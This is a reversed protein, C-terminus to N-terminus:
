LEKIAFDAPPDRRLPILYWRVYTAVGLLLVLWWLVLATRMWPKYRNLRLFEPLLRTGAAILIYIGLLEAVMGLGGHVAAMWYYAKDLHRPIGPIVARHFSPTM